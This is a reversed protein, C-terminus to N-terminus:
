AYMFCSTTYYVVLSGECMNVTVLINGITAFEKCTDTENQIGCISSLVENLFQVSDGNRYSLLLTERIDSLWNANM